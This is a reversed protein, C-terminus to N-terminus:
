RGPAARSERLRQQFWEASPRVTQGPCRVRYPKGSISSGTAAREIFLATTDAMGRKRLYDYKKQLHARAAAADHWRGNREFDCGSGGLGAILAAIERQATADQAAMTTSAAVSALMAVCVAAARPLATARPAASM